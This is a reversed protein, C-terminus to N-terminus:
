GNDFVESVWEPRPEQFIRAMERITEPPIPHKNEPNAPDRRACCVEVPCRVVVVKAAHGRLAAEEIYGAREKNTASTNDVVILDQPRFRACYEQFRDFCLKHAVGRAELVFDYTGDEATFFDDASVVAAQTYPTKLHQAVLQKVLTSKGSGPLGAMVIIM